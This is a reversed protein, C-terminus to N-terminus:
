VSNGKRLSLMAADNVILSKATEQGGETLFIRAKYIRRTGTTKDTEYVLGREVLRRVSHSIIPAKKRREFNYGSNIESHFTRAFMNKQANSMKTADLGKRKIREEIIAEKDFRFFEDYIQVRYIWSNHKYMKESNHIAILVWKQLKSLREKSM